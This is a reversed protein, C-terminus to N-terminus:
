SRSDAGRRSPRGVPVHRETFVLPPRIKLVNERPGTSGILVGQERMAEVVRDTLEPDTLEVGVFLGPGRVQVVRPDGLGASKVACTTGLGSRRKPSVSAKSCVRACGDGGSGRGTLRRLHLLLPLARRLHGRVEATTVVAGMPYGNGMPKGLTVIDPVVNDAAFGWFRTGVRGFGAQM